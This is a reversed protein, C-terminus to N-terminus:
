ASREQTEIDSVTDPVIRVTKYLWYYNKGTRALILLLFQWTDISYEHLYKNIKYFSM